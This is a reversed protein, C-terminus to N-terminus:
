DDQYATMEEFIKVLAEYCSWGSRTFSQEGIGCLQKNFNLILEGLEKSSFRDINAAMRNGIEEPNPQKEEPLGMQWGSVMPMMGSMVMPQSAMTQSPFPPPPPPPTPPTVMGFPNDEKEDDVMSDELMREADRHDIEQDPSDAAIEDLHDQVERHDVEDKEWWKFVKLPNM